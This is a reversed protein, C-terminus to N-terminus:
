SVRSRLIIGNTTCSMSYYRNISPYALYHYKRHFVNTFCWLSPAVASENASAFPGRLNTPTVEAIHVVYSFIGIGIGLSLRGLDLWWINKGFAIALWGVLSFIESFWMAGKRGFLDAIRGSVLGGIVGGITLSSGFVSYKELEPQVDKLAKSAKVMPDVEVFKLKKSLIELTRMYEDNILFCCPSYVMCM